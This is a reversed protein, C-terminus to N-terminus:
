RTFWNGSILGAPGFIGLVAGEPDVRKLTTRLIEAMPDIVPGYKEVNSGQLHCIWADIGAMIATCSRGARQNEGLTELWRQPIKQSGDMAIQILRHNLAPNAFRAMLESAYRSLDQGPATRITPAAEDLMLQKALTALSPDAIAEHVFVHGRELGCYALLSHAGNLMRLKATEYPRVDAVLEAGHKEWSPRRAAFNDEIVWQSFPETMVAGDDELGIKAALQARDAPTTAPVIRDVMTSPCTCHTEFWPLLAPDHIGMYATMLSRLQRGNEALNDCSLLTLGSLGADHRRRLGKAVFAYFSDPGALNPDLSGDAARCYGKETVTFSVMQTEPAALATIVAECDQTAVLVQRVSGIVRTREGDASKETLTYLGDQPNLQAAVDPSRLSVGTIAWDQEGSGMTLDTYWAMHARHFAGIGFHVIGDGRSTRRYSPRAVRSPLAAINANSLRV